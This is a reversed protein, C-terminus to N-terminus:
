QVIFKIGSRTTHAVPGSQAAPQFSPTNQMPMSPANPRQVQRQRQVPAQQTAQSDDFKPISGFDPVDSVGAKAARNGIDTAFDLMQNFKIRRTQSSDTINPLTNRWRAYESDSVALGSMLKIVQSNINNISLAFKDAANNSPIGMAGAAANAVMGVVGPTTRATDLIKQGASNGSPDINDHLTNFNQNISDVALGRNTQNETQNLKAGMAVAQTYTIGPPLPKGDPGTMKQLDSIPIPQDMKINVNTVARGPHLMKFYDMQSMNPNQQSLWDFNKQDATEQTNEDPKILDLGRKQLGPDGSLVMAQVQDNFRESPSPMQWQKGANAPDSEFDKQQQGYDAAIAAQLKQYSSATNQAELVPNPKNGFVSATYGQMLDDLIGAM